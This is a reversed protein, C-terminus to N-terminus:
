RYRERDIPVRITERPHEHWPNYEDDDEDNCEDNDKFDIPEVLGDPNFYDPTHLSMGSKLQQAHLIMQNCRIIVQCTDIYVLSDEDYIVGELTIKKILLEFNKLQKEIELELEKMKEQTM